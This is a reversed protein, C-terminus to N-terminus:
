DYRVLTTYETNVVQRVVNKVHKDISDLDRLAYGLIAVRM